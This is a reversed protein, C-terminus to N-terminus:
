SCNLAQQLLSLLAVTSCLLPSCPTKLLALHATEAFALRLPACFESLKAGPFESVDILSNFGVEAKFSEASQFPVAITASIM